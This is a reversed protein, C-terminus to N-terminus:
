VTVKETEELRDLESWAGEWEGTKEEDAEIYDARFEAWEDAPIKARIHGGMVSKVSQDLSNNYIMEEDTRPNVFKAYDDHTEPNTFEYFKGNGSIFLVGAVIRGNVEGVHFDYDDESM